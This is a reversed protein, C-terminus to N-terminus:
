SRIRGTTGVDDKEEADEDSLAKTVLQEAQELGFLIGQYKGVEYAWGDTGYIRHAFNHTQLAIAAKLLALIRQEIPQM